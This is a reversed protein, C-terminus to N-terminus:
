VKTRTNYYYVRGNAASAQKWEGDSGNSATPNKTPNQAANQAAQRRAKATELKQKLDDLNQTNRKSLIDESSNNLNASDLLPNPPTSSPLSARLNPPPPPPSSPPVSTKRAETPNSPPPYNSPVDDSTKLEEEIQELLNDIDEM